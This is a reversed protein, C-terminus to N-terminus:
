WRNIVYVPKAGSLVVLAAFSFCAVAFAILGFGVGLGFVSAQLLSGGSGVVVNTRRVNSVLIGLATAAALVMLLVGNLQDGGQTRAALWWAQGCWMLSSALAYALFAGRTLFRHQFRNWAYREFRMVAWCAIGIVLAAALLKMVTM